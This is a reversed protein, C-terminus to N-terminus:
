GQKERLVNWTKSFLTVNRFTGRYASAVKTKDTASLPTKADPLRAARFRFGAGIAAKVPMVNRQFIPIIYRFYVCYGRYRIKFVAPLTHDSALFLRGKSAAKEPFLHFDPKRIKM